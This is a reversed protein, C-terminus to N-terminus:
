FYVQKVPLGCEQTAATHRATVHFGEKDTSSLMSVRDQSLKEHSVHAAHLAVSIAWHSLLSSKSHVQIQIVVYMDPLEHSRYSWSCSIQPKGKTEAPAASMYVIGVRGYTFM